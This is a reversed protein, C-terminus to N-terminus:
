GNHIMHAQFLMEDMEGERGIPEKKPGPLHMVWSALLSDLIPVQQLDEFRNRSIALIM